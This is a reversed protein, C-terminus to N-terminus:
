LFFVRDDFVLVPAPRPVDGALRANDILLDGHSIAVNEGELGVVRKVLPAEEGPLQLVVCEFRSPLGRDYRVFVREGGSIAPEMSASDVHFVGGVFTRAVLWLLVVAALAFVVRSRIRASM